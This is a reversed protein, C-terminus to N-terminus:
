GGGEAQLEVLLEKAELLYYQVLDLDEGGGRPTNRQAEAIARWSELRDAHGRIAERRETDTASMDVEAEMLRRSWAVSETMGIHPTDWGLPVTTRRVKARELARRAVQARAAALENVTEGKESESRLSGVVALFTLAVAVCGIGVRKGM